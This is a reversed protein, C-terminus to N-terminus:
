RLAACRLLLRAPPLLIEPVSPFLRLLLYCCYCYCCIQIQLREVLLTGSCPSRDPIPAPVPAFLPSPHPLNFSRPLPCRPQLLFLCAACSFPNAAQASAAPRPRLPLPPWCDLVAGCWVVVGMMENGDPLRARDRGGMPVTASRDRPWIGRM